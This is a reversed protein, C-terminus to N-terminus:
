PTDPEPEEVREDPEPKVVEPDACYPVFRAICGGDVREDSEDCGNSNAACVNEEPEKGKPYKVHECGDDDRTRGRGGRVRARRPSRTTAASCCPTLALAASSRTRTAATAAPTSATM